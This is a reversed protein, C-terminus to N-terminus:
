VHSRAAKEDYKELKLDIDIETEDGFPLEEISAYDNLREGKCEFFYNTLFVTQVHELLFERLEMLNDFQSTKLVIPNGGNPDIVKMTKTAEKQMMENMLESPPIKGEPNTQTEVM